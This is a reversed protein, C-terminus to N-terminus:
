LGLYKPTLLNQKALAQNAKTSYSSDFRALQEYTLALYHWAEPYSSDLRVAQELPYRAYVYDKNTYFTVGVQLAEKPDTYIKEAVDLKSLVDTKHNAEFFGRTVAIDVPAVHAIRVDQAALSNTPDFQLAKKYESEAVDFDLTLMYADGRAIYREAVRKRVPIAAQQVIMLGLALSVALILTVRWPSFRKQEM